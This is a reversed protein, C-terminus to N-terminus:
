NTLQPKISKGDLSISFDVNIYKSNISINHPHILKKYKEFLETASFLEVWVLKDDFFITRRKEIFRFTELNNTQNLANEYKTLDTNPFKSHIIFHRKPENQASLTLTFLLLLIFYINKM